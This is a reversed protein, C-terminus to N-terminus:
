AVSAIKDIRLRLHLSAVPVTGLSATSRGLVHCSDLSRTDEVADVLERLTAAGVGVRDAWELRAAPLLGNRVPNAAWSAAIGARLGEGGRNSRTGRVRETNGIRDSCPAIEKDIDLNTYLSPGFADM